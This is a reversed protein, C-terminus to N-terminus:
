FIPPPLYFAGKVFLDNVATIMRDLQKQGNSLTFLMHGPLFADIDLDALKHASERYADLTSGSNPYNQLSILGGWTVHDGIFIYRKEQGQMVYTVGARSHGPTILTRISLRGLQFEDNDKVRVDVPCPQVTFDMPYFGSRKAVDLGLAVEDASELLDAEGESLCVQCDFLDRFYAAGGVHDTHAHTLFLYEIAEPDFGHSKINDVITQNDIGVGADVLALNGDGGDLLYVYCDSDHTMSIGHEGAAVLYVEDTLKMSIGEM